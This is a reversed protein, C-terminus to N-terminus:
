VPFGLFADVGDLWPKTGMSQRRESLSSDSMCIGHDSNLNQSFTGSSQMVHFVFFTVRFNFAHSFCNGLHTGNICPLIYGISDLM